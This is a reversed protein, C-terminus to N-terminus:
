KVKYTIQGNKMSAKIPSNSYDIDPFQTDPYSIIEDGYFVGNNEKPAKKYFTVCDGNLDKALFGTLAEPRPRKSM